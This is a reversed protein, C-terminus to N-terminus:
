RDDGKPAPPTLALFARGRKVNHQQEPDGLNNLLMYDVEQDVFAHIIEWAEHLYATLRGKEDDADAQLERLAAPIANASHRHAEACADALANGNEAWDRAAREHMLVDQRIRERLRAVEAQSAALAEPTVYGAALIEGAKDMYRQRQSETLVDLWERAPNGDLEWLFKALAEREQRPTEPADTM